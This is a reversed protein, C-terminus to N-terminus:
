YYEDYTQEIGDHIHYAYQEEARELFPYHFVLATDGTLYIIPIIGHHKQGKNKNLVKVGPTQKTYRESKNDFPLDEFGEIGFTTKFVAIATQGTFVATFLQATVFCRQASKQGFYATVFM